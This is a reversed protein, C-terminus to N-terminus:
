LGPRRTVHLRFGNDPVSLFARRVQGRRNNVAIKEIDEFAAHERDVVRFGSLTEVFLAETWAACEGRRRNTRIAAEIGGALVAVNVDHFRPRGELQKRRVLHALDDHRGRREGVPHQDDAPQLM